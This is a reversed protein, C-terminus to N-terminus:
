LEDNASNTSEGENEVDDPDRTDEVASRSESLAEIVERPM